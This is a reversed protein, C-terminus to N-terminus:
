RASRSSSPSSRRRAEDELDAIRARDIKQGRESGKMDADYGRLNQELSRIAQTVRARLDNESVNLDDSEFEDFLADVDIHEHFDTYKVGTTPIPVYPVFPNKPTATM